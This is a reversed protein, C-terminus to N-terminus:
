EGMQRERQIEELAARAPKVLPGALRRKIEADPLNEFRQRFTNKEGEFHNVPEPSNNGFVDQLFKRIVDPRAFSLLLLFFLSFLQIGPSIWTGSIGFSIDAQIGPTFSLLNFTGLILIIFLSRRLYKPAKGAVISLFILSLIGGLNPLSLRIEQLVFLSHLISPLAFLWLIILIGIEIHRYKSPSKM